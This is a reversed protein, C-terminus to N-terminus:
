SPPGPREEPEAALPNRTRLEEFLDFDGDRTLLVAGHEIALAALHADMILKATVGTELLLDRLVTWHDEGAHLLHINPQSLWDDVISVAEQISFPSRFIKPNTTIRLFALLTPWSLGIPELGSLAETLWRHAPEHVPSSRDHAYLLLNADVLIV